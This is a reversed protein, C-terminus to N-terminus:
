PANAPVMGPFVAQAAHLPINLRLPAKNSDSDLLFRDSLMSVVRRASREPIGLIEPVSGREVPGYLILHQILRDGKVLGKHSRTWDLLDRTFTDTRLTRTMFQVQDLATELFHRTFEV